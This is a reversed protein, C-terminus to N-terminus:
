DELGHFFGEVFEEIHDAEYWVFGLTALLPLVGAAVARIEDVHLDRM